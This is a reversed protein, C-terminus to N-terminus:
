YLFLNSDYELRADIQSEVAWEAADVVMTGFLAFLYIVLKADKEWTLM